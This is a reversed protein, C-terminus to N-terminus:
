WNLIEFLKLAMYFPEDQYYEIDEQRIRVSDTYDLLYECQDEDDWYTSYQSEDCVVAYEVGNDETYFLCYSQFTVEYMDEWSDSDIVNYDELKM